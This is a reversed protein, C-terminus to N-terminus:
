KPYNPDAKVEEIQKTHREVHASQFLLYGYADLNGLALHKAGFSRLDGGNRALKMMEGREKRFTEVATAPSGFRNTPVLPEPAKFKTSRDPVRMLIMDDKRADKLTEASAPEKMVGAMAEHTMKESAAIHEAVEAITWRGEAARFNWQAETLGDVSKLFAGSTVDLNTLLKERDQETLAQGSLSLTCAAM